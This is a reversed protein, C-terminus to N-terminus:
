KWGSLEREFTIAVGNVEQVAHILPTAYPLGAAAVDAYFRQMAALEPKRQHGWVKAVMGDGLRYIAGEVGAALPEVDPYGTSAFYRL